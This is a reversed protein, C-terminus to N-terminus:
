QTSGRQELWVSAMQAYPSEPYYALYAKVASEISAPDADSPQADQVMQWESKMKEQAHAPAPQRLYIRGILIGDKAPAQTDILDRLDIATHAIEDDITETRMGLNRLLATTYPSNNPTKKSGDSAGMGRKVAYAIMYSESDRRRDEFLNTKSFAPSAAALSESGDTSASLDELPAGQEM